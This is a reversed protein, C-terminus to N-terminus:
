DHSIYHQYGMFGMQLCLYCQLQMSFVSVVPQARKTAFKQPVQSPIYLDIFGICRFILLLFVLCGLEAVLIFSSYSKEKFSFCVMQIQLSWREEEDRHDNILSVSLCLRLLGGGDGQAQLSSLFLEVSKETLGNGASLCYPSKYHLICQMKVGYHGEKDASAEIINLM